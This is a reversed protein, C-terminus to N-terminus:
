HEPLRTSHDAFGGDAKSHRPGGQVCQHALEADGTLIKSPVSDIALRSKMMAARSTGDFGVARPNERQANIAPGHATKFLRERSSTSVQIDMTTFGGARAAPTSNGAPRRQLRKERLLRGASSTTKFILLPPM